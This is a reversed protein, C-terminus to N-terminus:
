SPSDISRPMPELIFQGIEQWWTFVEDIVDSLHPWGDYGVHVPPEIEEWTSHNFRHKHHADPHGATWHVHANDYRLISREGDGDIGAHYSYKFTRVQGRENLELQKYVDIFIGQQFYLRGELRLTDASVTHVAVGDHILFGDM